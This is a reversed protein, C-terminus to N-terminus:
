PQDCVQRLLETFSPDFADRWATFNHVDAVERFTVAYGLTRLTDAMARNNALNEELGGCTMAVPVPSPDSSAGAVEAVFRTVQDFRSFRREQPDLEPTFFSSSQLFLAGFMGPASRHAHLMALGGLSAGMGIRVSTALQSTVAPLVARCLARAYRASASYWRDRPGPALLAARLRPLWGGTVGASLYRTLSALADYEPGDHAVLLPLPQDDATGAPCWTRVPIAGDLSPVPVEFSRGHGPESPATLWGPPTYGPFELVSKPGFAGAAQRPNGPDTTTVARGDAYCLEVLYEMRSVPPPSIALQWGDGSRRFDLMGDPIGRDPRLRVGTLQRDPDPVWFSATGGDARTRAGPASIV